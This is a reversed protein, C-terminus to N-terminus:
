VREQFHEVSEAPYWGQTSDELLGFCMGIKNRPRLEYLIAGIKFSLDQNGEGYVNMTARRLNMQEHKSSTTSRASSAISSSFSSLSLTSSARSFSSDDESEEEGFSNIKRSFLRHKDEMQFKEKISIGKSSYKLDNKLYYDNSSQNQLPTIEHQDLICTSVDKNSSKEGLVGTEVGVSLAEEPTDKKITAEGEENIREFSAFNRHSSSRIRTCPKAPTLGDDTVKTENCRSTIECGSGFSQSREKQVKVDDNTTIKVSIGYKLSDRPPKPPADISGVETEKIKPSFVVSEHNRDIFCVMKAPKCQEDETSNLKIYEDTGFNNRGTAFKTLDQIEVSSTKNKRPIPELYPRDDDPSLKIQDGDLSPLSWSPKMDSAYRNALQLFRPAGQFSLPRGKEILRSLFM